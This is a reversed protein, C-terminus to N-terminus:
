PSLSHGGLCVLIYGIWMLFFNQPFFSLAGALFPGILPILMVFPSLPVGWWSIFIRPMNPGLWNEMLQALKVLLHGFLPLYVLFDYFKLSVFCGVFFLIGIGFSNLLISKWKERRDLKRLNLYAILGSVMVTYIIIFYYVTWRDHNLIDAYTMNNRFWWKLVLFLGMLVFSSWWLLSSEEDQSCPLCPYLLLSMPFKAKFCSAFQESFM